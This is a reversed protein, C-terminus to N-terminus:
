ALVEQPVDQTTQTPSSKQGNPLSPWMRSYQPSGSHSPAHITRHRPGEPLIHGQCLHRARHSQTPETRFSQAIAETALAKHIVLAHILWLLLITEARSPMTGGNELLGMWQCSLGPPECHHAQLQSKQKQKWTRSALTLLGSTCSHMHGAPCAQRACQVRVRGVTARPGPRSRPCHLLDPCTKEKQSDHVELLFHSNIVVSDKYRNRSCDPSAQPSIGTGEATPCQAGVGHGM